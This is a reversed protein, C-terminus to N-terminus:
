MLLADLVIIGCTQNLISENEPLQCKVIFESFDQKTELVIGTADVAFELNGPLRWEREHSWDIINDINSLDLKVLRYLERENLYESGENLKDYIVPRCGREFLYYKSFVLGCGSYRNRTSGAQVLEKEYKLNQAVSYLPADQFCVASRDGRIFGSDTTSGVIVRERLIKLLVDVSSLREGDITAARTLHVLSSSLDQRDSM